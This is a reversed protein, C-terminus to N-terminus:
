CGHHDGNHVKDGQINQPHSTRDSGQHMDGKWHRDDGVQWMCRASQGPLTSRGEQSRLDLPRVLQSYEQVPVQGEQAQQVSPVWHLLLPEKNRKGMSSRPWNGVWLQTKSKGIGM